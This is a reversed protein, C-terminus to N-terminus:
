LLNGPGSIFGAVVIQGNSSSSIATWQKDSPAGTSSSWSSGGNSSYKIEIM